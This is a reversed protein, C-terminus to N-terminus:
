DLYLFRNSAMLMQCLSSFARVDPAHPNKSVNEQWATDPDSRFIEAQEKLYSLCFQTEDADPSAAFLRLFVEALRSESDPLNLAFVQEATADSMKVISEDNLFWLAQPAATSSTRQACNPSMMPLDFTDLMNLPLARPSSLYVSRRFEQDGVSETNSYLGDRLIRRGIVAKGEGDESVPVSEGAVRLNIRGAVAVIADRIAEAELRQLNMRGLLLNDPDIRDLTENRQSTQRYATSMVIQKHFRKVRWGNRVFDDALWDLLEPHTPKEGAAGFDATTRVLGRGFHHRWMRNVAVRATLPHTGDTLQRAYALRRGTTTRGETKEPIAPAQRGVTLVHIEGPAVPKTPQQPDGRFFVTSAPIAAASEQVTMVMRPSPKTKRVEAVKKEEEEFKRYAPMDYEILQGIIWEISRVTPYQDLLSKQEPTQKDAEATVAARLADRVNEPANNIAKDQIMRCHERRRKDIDEQQTVADAEIRAIEARCTDDTLDTLRETPKKWTPLPFAPDFISRFRYYDEITIPDYRHDHCQACGVTLGLASTAVVKLTEAVAQNRDMLTDDSQTIDPAMRLFGTAALLEVHRPNNGDPVGEILEDGALQETLFQDYPKDDNLSQIVYDRYHWAYPREHDKGQNGDSEAYGAIDLWHRGWRVGYQPSALLRDVVNEWADPSQDEMFERVETPSPPLGTLDFTVRRILTARDAEPSFGLSHKSLEAALFGDIPTSIAYGSPSPPEQTKVPQWAWFRLDEETFRADEPNAPESRATKAGEAIWQRLTAKESASLKKPGPPMENATVRQWLLAADPNGAAIAAGSEGGTQMLRVLRLDLGAKPVPEEGHCMFCHAKFIPRVDREFTLGTVVDQACLM